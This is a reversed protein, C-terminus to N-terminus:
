LVKHRCSGRVTSRRLIVQHGTKALKKASLLSKVVQALQFKLSIPIGHQTVCPVFKEGENAIKGGNAAVYNKGFKEGKVVPIKAFSETPMPHVASGSDVTVSVKQWETSEEEANMMIEPGSPCGPSTLTMDVKVKAGKVDIAYVLGLDLINLNLDYRANVLHM